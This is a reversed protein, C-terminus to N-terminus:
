PKGDLRRLHGVLTDYTVWAEAPAKVADDKCKTYPDYVNEQVSWLKRSKAGCPVVIAADSHQSMIVVAFPIKGSKKLAKWKDVTGIFVGDSRFPFDELTTWKLDRSKVELVKGNVILDIEDKFRHRDSYTKRYERKPIEVRLGDLTLREALRDVHSNGVDLRAKFKEDTFRENGRDVRRRGNYCKACVWRRGTWGYLKREDVEGCRDCGMCPPREERPPPTFHTKPM